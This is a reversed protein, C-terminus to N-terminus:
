IAQMQLLENCWTYVWEIMFSVAWIMAAIRAVPAKELGMRAHTDKLLNQKGSLM